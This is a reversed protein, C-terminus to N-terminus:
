WYNVNNSFKYFSPIGDDEKTPDWRCATWADAKRYQAYFLRIDIKGNKWKDWALQNWVQQRVFTETGVEYSGISLGADCQPVADGTTAQGLGDYSFQANLFNSNGQTM